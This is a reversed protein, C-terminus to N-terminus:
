NILQNFTESKGYRNLLFDRIGLFKATMLSKDESKSRLWILSSQILVLVVRCLSQILGGHVRALELSNRALLYYIAPKPTATIPNSVISGWVVATKWGYKNARISIDYEDGYVFYREDFLGIEALCGRRFMMVTGHAFDVSEVTGFPRPQINNILRPGLIPSFKPLHRVGYEPSIIGIKKDKTIAELLMKLCDPNLLADHASIICYDSNDKELWQKLLLNFAGGWGRNESLPFIEVTSPLNLRLKEANEQSSGNDIITIALPIDQALFSQVTALCEDPRNWHLIFVPIAVDNSNQLSM